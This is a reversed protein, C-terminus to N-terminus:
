KYRCLGCGTFSLLAKVAPINEMKVAGSRISRVISDVDWLFRRDSLLERFEKRIDSTDIGSIFLSYRLTGGMGGTEVSNALQSLDSLPPPEPAQPPPESNEFFADVDEPSYPGEQVIPEDGDTESSPADEEEESEEPRHEEIAPEQAQRSAPPNPDASAAAERQLLDRFAVETKLKETADFAAARAKVAPDNPPLRIIPPRDAPAEPEMNRNLSTDPEPVESSMSQVSGDMQVFLPSKCESCEILGFEDPVVSNCVPCHAM